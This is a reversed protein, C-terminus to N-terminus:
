GNPKLYISMNAFYYMFWYSFLYTLGQLNHCAVNAKQRNSKYFPWVNFSATSLLPVSSMILNIISMADDITFLYCSDAQKHSHTLSKHRNTVKSCYTQMWHTDLATSITICKVLTINPFHKHINYFQKFKITLRKELPTHCNHLLIKKTYIIYSTQNQKSMVKYLYVHVCVYFFM